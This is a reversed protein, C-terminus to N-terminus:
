ITRDLQSATARSQSHSQFLRFREEVSITRRPDLWDSQPKSMRILLSMGAFQKFTYDVTTYNYTNRNVADKDEGAIGIDRFLTIQSNAIDLAHAGM